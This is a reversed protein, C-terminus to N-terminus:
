RELNRSYYKQAGLLVPMEEDVLNDIQFNDLTLQIDTKTTTSESIGDEMKSPQSVQKYDVVLRNFCMFLLEKPVNDIFTFGIGKFDAHLKYGEKKLNHNENEAEHESQASDQCEHDPDEHNAAHQNRQHPWSIM